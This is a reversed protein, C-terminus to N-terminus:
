GIAEALADRGGSLVPEGHSVLVREIPHELLPRLLERLGDRTLGSELYGLWSDPCLRLGGGPAGLIRDGAILAREGALWFMTEGAGSLRIPELGAPLARRARSTAAGYRSVLVERSRRHFGITTLALCREATAVRGDAWRWFRPEDVPVLADVFVAAREVECLLCGVARDWDAPSDRAAGPTWGPHDATWRWIGPAIAAPRAPARATM